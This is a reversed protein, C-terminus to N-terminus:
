AYISNFQNPILSTLAAAKSIRLAERSPVENLIQKPILFGTRYAISLARSRDFYLLRRESFARILSAINGNPRKGYISCIFNVPVDNQCGEYQGSGNLHITAWLPQGMSDYEDLVVVIADERSASDFVYAPHALRNPLKAMSKWSILHLHNEDDYVATADHFHKQGYLVPLPSCGLNTLVDPTDCVYMGCARDLDGTQAKEMQSLFQDM